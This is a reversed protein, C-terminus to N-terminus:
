PKPQNCTNWIRLLLPSHDAFGVSSVQTCQLLLVVMNLGDMQMKLMTVAIQSKSWSITLSSCSFIQDMVILSASIALFSVLLSFGM